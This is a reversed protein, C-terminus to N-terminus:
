VRECDRLQHTRRPITDREHWLAVQQRDSLIEEREEATAHIPSVLLATSEPM